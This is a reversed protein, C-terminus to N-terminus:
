HFDVWIGGVYGQYKSTSTNFRVCAEEEDLITGNSKPVRIYNQTVKFLDSNIAWGDDNAINTFFYYEDSNFVTIIRNDSDNTKIKEQIALGTSSSKIDQNSPNFVLTSQPLNISYTIDVKNGFVYTSQNGLGFGSINIDTGLLFGGIANDVSIDKGIATGIFFDLSIDEGIAVGYGNDGIGSNVSNINKGIYTGRPTTNPLINTDSISINNGIRFCDEINFNNFVDTGIAISTKNTEFRFGKTQTNEDSENFSFLTSRINVSDTYSKLKDISSSNTGLTLDFNEGTITTNKILDGGLQINDLTKTLGNDATNSPNIIQNVWNTGNFVLVEGNTPSSEVVNGLNNLSCGALDSCNFENPLVITQSIWNTGNFVLSEGSVPTVDVDALDNISCGSLDECTFTELSNIVDEIQEQLDCDNTALQEIVQNLNQGSTITACIVDEGNYTVCESTIPQLCGENPNPILEPCDNCPM